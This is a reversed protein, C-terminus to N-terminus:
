EKGEKADALIAQAGEYLDFIGYLLFLVALSMWILWQQIDAPLAVLKWVGLIYGLGIATTAVGLLMSLYTAERQINM